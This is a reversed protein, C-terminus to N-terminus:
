RKRLVQLLALAAKRDREVQGGLVAVVGVSRDRAALDAFGADRNAMPAVHLSSNSPIGSPDILVEIVILAVAGNM